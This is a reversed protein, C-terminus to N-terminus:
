CPLLLRLPLPLYEGAAIRIARLYDKFIDIRAGLSLDRAKPRARAEPTWPLSSARGAIVRDADSRVRLEESIKDMQERSYAEGSVGTRLQNLTRDTGAIRALSATASPVDDDPQGVPTPKSKHDGQSTM